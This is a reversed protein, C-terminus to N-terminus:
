SPDSIAETILDRRRAFTRTFNVVFALTLLLQAIALPTVLGHRTRVVAFAIANFVVGAPVLVIMEFRQHKVIHAYLARGPATGAFAERRARILRYDYVYLFATLAFSAFSYGFWEVPRDMQSFTLCELLALAFYFFYHGLDMPWIVFSLAHIIAVSWFSLVFLFGTALFALTVLSPAHLMPAAMVALTTLAVGQVVSILVFEVDLVIQDLDRRAFMRPMM